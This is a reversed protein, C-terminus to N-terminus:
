NEGFLFGTVTCPLLSKYFLVSYREFILQEFNMKNEKKPLFKVTKYDYSTM